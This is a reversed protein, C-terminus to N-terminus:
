RSTQVYRAQLTHHYELCCCTPPHCPTTHM